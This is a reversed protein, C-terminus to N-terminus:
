VMEAIIGVTHVATTAYGTTISQFYARTIKVAIVDPLDFSIVKNSIAILLTSMRLTSM